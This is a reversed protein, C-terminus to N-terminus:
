EVTVSKALNRPKDIDRDLRYATYYSILQLVVNVLLPSFLPPVDPIFYADDALKELEKDKDGVVIVPSDRAAIEGINGLMKDFTEDKVAIAIVPTNETLLAFPGHKLEGAPYGAAHIYAIEKLKLAGELAVPYNINRGVFFIDEAKALSETMDRIKEKDNLISEVKRPLRRLEDRYKDAQDKSLVNRKIGMEIALLYLMVVQTTFTKTAAVGIEPGAQTYMVEDVERTISSDLVNTIALTDNGRQNAERAAAMTDLTEGSQSLLITLPYSESPSSHRYESSFELTCPIKAIKEFIYKGVFGAHASTGCAIFQIANPDYKSLDFEDFNTLRGLISEHIAKPQEFIEKLMFHEYGGKEADELDWEIKKTKREILQDDENWIDIEDGTIRAIDGDQLYKVNKTHELLAPADSAVLNEDEGIGVVMPSQNRTVLLESSDRRLALIAYSGSIKTVTKKFAELLDGDNNEELLHVIVESDTESSFEHGKDILEDKISNFNDIIGNHVIAIEGRCDVFPHANEDSPKGHTAWRTHGIGAKGEPIDEKSLDEIRGKKKQLYIEDEKRVGVGASDYGRYDLRKLGDILVDRINKPGTYGVIGCM